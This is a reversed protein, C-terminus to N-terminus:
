GWRGTHVEIKKIVLANQEALGTLLEVGEIGGSGKDPALQLFPM